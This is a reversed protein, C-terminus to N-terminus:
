RLRRDIETTLQDLHGVARGCLAVAAQLWAPVEGTSNLVTVAQNVNTGFRVVATRAEFLQRQLRVLAERHQADTLVMPTGRAAALASDAVFGHVTMGISAAATKVEALEDDTFRPSLVTTRPQARRPRRRGPLEPMPGALDDHPPLADTPM